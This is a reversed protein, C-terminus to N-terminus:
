ERLSRGGLDYKPFLASLCIHGWSSSTYAPEIGNQPKLVVICLYGNLVIYGDIHVEGDVV